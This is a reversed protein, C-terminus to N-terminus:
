STRRTAPTTTPRTAPQTTPGVDMQLNPEPLTVETPKVTMGPRARQVGNIVVRSDTPLPSTIKRMQDVVDGVEVKVREVTNKENVVLVYRGQQDVGVAADPVLTVTEEGVIGRIRAFAGPVMRGHANDFVAEVTTTGTAPDFGPDGRAYHGEFPYGRDNAFGVYMPILPRGGEGPRENQFQRRLELVTQEPVNFTVYITADNVIRCLVQTTSEGVLEGVDPVDVSVRGNIPAKVQTYDLDLQASTLKAKSLELQAAANDRDATAQELELRSVANEAASQTKRDLTNQALRLLAERSQVEAQAQRVTAEFPRPDITFLLDGAKVKEGGEINKSQIFGRVRARVDVQESGRTFGTFDLTQPLTKVIPRAVSVDPPPPPTFAAERPKCGVVGPFVAGLFVASAACLSSVVSAPRM